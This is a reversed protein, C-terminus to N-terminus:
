VYVGLVPGFKSCFQSFNLSNKKSDWMKALHFYVEFSVQYHSEPKIIIIKKRTAHGECNLIISVCKLNEYTVMGCDFYMCEVYYRLLFLTRQLTGLCSYGSYM